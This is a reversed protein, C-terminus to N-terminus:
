GVAVTAGVLLVLLNLGSAWKGVKPNSVDRLLDGVARASQPGVMSRTRAIVLECSPVNAIRSGLLATALLLLPVLSFMTYFALAAGKQQANHGNWNTVTRILMTWCIRTSM